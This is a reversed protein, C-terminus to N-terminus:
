PPSQSQGLFSLNLVQVRSLGVQVVILARFEEVDMAVPESVAERQDM